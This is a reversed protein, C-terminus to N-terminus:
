SVVVDIKDAIQKLEDEALNSVTLVCNYNGRQWILSDSEKGKYLDCLTGNALELQAATPDENDIATHASDSRTYYFEIQDSGRTYLINGTFENTESSKAVYGEPVYGLTLGVIQQPEVPVAASEYGTMGSGTMTRIWQLCTARVDENIAFLLLFSCTIIILCAATNKAIKYFRTKIRHRKILRAMKEHFEPSVQIIEKLEESSPLTDQERKYEERLAQRLLEEDFM